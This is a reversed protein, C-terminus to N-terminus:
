SSCRRIFGVMDAICEATKPTEAHAFGHGVGEYLKYEAKGGALEWAGQLTRSMMVPVNQDLEPQVIFIPPLHTFKRATLINQIAADSMQQTDEFYAEHGAKLRDPAFRKLTAPDEHSRATVYQYRAVPDSVPWLAIVYDVATGDNADNGPNLATCLALHGGSSSGVLGIGARDVGLDATTKIWRIAAAIDEVAAPHKFDPGQRFDVAVVCIGAEALARDYHRGSTRDLSSWAGGHVDIVVPIKSDNAVEPVYVRASLDLEGRCLYIHDAEQYAMNFPGIASSKIVPVRDSRTLM